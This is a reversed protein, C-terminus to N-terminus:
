AEDGTLPLIAALVLKLLTVAALVYYFNRRIRNM